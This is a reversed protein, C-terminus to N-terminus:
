RFEALFPISDELDDATSKRPAAGSQAPKSVEDMRKFAVSLYQKGNRDQKLWGSFWYDVGGVRCKGTRDPQNEREKRDNAFLSGTNDKTEYAM